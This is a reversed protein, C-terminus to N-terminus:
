QVGFNLQCLGAPDEVREVVREQPDGQPREAWGVRRRDLHAVACGKVRGEGSTRWRHRVDPVFMLHGPHRGM